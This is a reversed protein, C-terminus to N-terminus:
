STESTRGALTEPALSAAINRLNREITNLEPPGSNKSQLQCYDSIERLRENLIILAPIRQPLLYSRQYMEFSPGATKGPMHPGLPMKTLLNGLPKIVKIMMDVSANSLTEREAPDTEAQIFFRSLIQLVVEYCANFINAVGATKPDTIVEVDDVDGPLTVFAPVVDRVPSFNRDEKKVELYENLVNFFKGFHAKRWDGKAGEGETIITDIAKMASDLDTVTTLEPWGFYEETAQSKTSGIFVQSQGYRDSLDWFGQEIGRYLHGVTAFDQREPVIEEGTLIRKAPSEPQSGLVDKLSMGEPRELYLFHRLAKESFPMLTLQVGPSFYKAPHPFNPRGFHPAAGISTLLNNVLALHLMEQQAVGAIVREWRKVARLQSNTLGEDTSQKLSFTAFLYGCMVMHELTAAESLLFILQERNEIAITGERQAAKRPVICKGEFQL